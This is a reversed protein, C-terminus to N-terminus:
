SECSMFWQEFQQQAMSTVVRITAGTREFRMTLMVGATSNVQTVVTFMSTSVSMVVVPRLLVTRTLLIVWWLVVHFGVDSNGCLKM